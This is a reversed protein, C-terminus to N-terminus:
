GKNQSTILKFRARTMDKEWVVTNSEGVIKFLGNVNIVKYIGEFQFIPEDAFVCQLMDGDEMLVILDQWINFDASGIVTKHDEPKLIKEVILEITSLRSLGGGQWKACLLRTTLEQRLTLTTQETM